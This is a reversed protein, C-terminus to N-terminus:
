LRAIFMKKWGQPVLDFTTAMTVLRAALDGAEVYRMEERDREKGARTERGDERRCCVGSRSSRGGRRERRRMANRLSAFLLSVGQGRLWPSAKAEGDDRVRM